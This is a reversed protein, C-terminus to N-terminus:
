PTAGRGATVRELRDLFVRMVRRYLEDGLVRDEVETELTPNDNVEMVYVKRGKQKLDVGYLGDGMLGAARLATAVVAKPADEVALTEVPGYRTRGRRDRDVIQWHGKAM